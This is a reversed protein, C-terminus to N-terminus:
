EGAPPREVPIVTAEELVLKEPGKGSGKHAGDCLPYNASEGCTCMWHTGAELTMEQDSKNSMSFNIAGDCRNRLVADLDSPKSLEILLEHPSLGWAKTAMVPVGMALARIVLRPQHEVWAPLVLAESKELDELCGQEFFDAM